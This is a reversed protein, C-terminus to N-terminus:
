NPLCNSKEIAKGRNRAFDTAVEYTDFLGHWNKDNRNPSKYHPCENAHIIAVNPKKRTSFRVRYGVLPSGLRSVPLDVSYNALVKELEM